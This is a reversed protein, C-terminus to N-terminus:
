SSICMANDNGGNAANEECGQSHAIDIGQDAKLTLERFSGYRSLRPPEYLSPGHSENM